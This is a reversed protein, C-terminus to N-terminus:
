HLFRQRPRRSALDIAIPGNMIRLIRLSEESRLGSLWLGPLYYQGSKADDPRLTISAVLMGNLSKPPLTRGSTLELGTLPHTLHVFNDYGVSTYWRGQSINALDEGTSPPVM